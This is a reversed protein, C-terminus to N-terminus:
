IQKQKNAASPCILPRKYLTSYVLSYHIHILMLTKYNSFICLPCGFQTGVPVLVVGSTSTRCLVFTLKLKFSDIHFLFQCIAILKLFKLSPLLGSINTRYIKSTLNIARKTLAHPCTRIFKKIWNCRSLSM